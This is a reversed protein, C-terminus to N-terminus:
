FPRGGLFYRKNLVELRSLNLYVRMKERDGKFRYYLAQQTSVRRNLQSGKETTELAM